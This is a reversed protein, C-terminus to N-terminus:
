LNHPSKQKPEYNAILIERKQQWKGSINYQTDLEIINYGSYLERIYEDDNYSLMWRGKTKKLVEALEDHGDFSKTNDRFYLHEHHYYPPDIYFFTYESDYKAIVKEFSLNEIIVNSLRDQAKKLREINKLALTNNGRVSFHQSLSGYSLALKFYFMIARELQTRPTTHIFELFLERSALYQSLEKQFAFPHYKVYRWFIVLDGNLDNYIEKYRRGSNLWDKGIPSKGFLVWAAGGFPECYVNHKPILPIIKKRLLRKGGVWAIVSNMDVGM